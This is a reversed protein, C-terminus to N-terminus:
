VRMCVCMCVCVDRCARVCGFSDYPVPRQLEEQFKSLDIPFRGPVKKVFLNAMIDSLLKMDSLTLTKGGSLSTLAAARLRLCSQIKTVLSQFVSLSSSASVASGPSCPVYLCILLKMHVCRTAGLVLAAHLVVSQGLVMHGVCRTTPM